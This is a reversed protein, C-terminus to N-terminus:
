LTGATLIPPARPRLSLIGVASVYPFAGRPLARRGAANAVAPRPINGLVGVVTRVLEIVLGNILVALFAVVVSGFVDGVLRPVLDGAVGGAILGGRADLATFTLELLMWGVGLVFPSFGIWRTTLCGLLAYGAPLIVKLFFFLITSASAFSAAAEAALGLSLGWAAGCLAAPGPRLAYMAALLPLVAIWAWSAGGGSADAVAAL